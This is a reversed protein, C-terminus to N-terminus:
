KTENKNAEIIALLIAKNPNEDYLYYSDFDDAGNFVTWVVKTKNSTVGELPPKVEISYKIMLQFCLADDTLPSYTSFIVKVTGFSPVTYTYLSGDVNTTNIGEIEAIKQCIQLDTLSM